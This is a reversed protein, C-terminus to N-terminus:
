VRDRSARPKWLSILFHVLVGAALVVAGFLAARWGAVFALWLSAVLGASPLVIDALVQKLSVRTRAAAFTKIARANVGAFALLTVFNNFEAVDDINRM